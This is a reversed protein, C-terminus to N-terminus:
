EISMRCVKGIDFLEFRIIKRMCFRYYFLCNPCSCSTPILSGAEARRPSIQARCSTEPSILSQPIPKVGCIHLLTVLAQSILIKERGSPCSDPLIAGLRRSQLFCSLPTVFQEHCQKSDFQSGCLSAKEAPAVVLGGWPVRLLPISPKVGFIPGKLTEWWKHSCTSHKLTPKNM